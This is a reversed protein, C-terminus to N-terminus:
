VSPLDQWSGQVEGEVGDGVVIGEGPGSVVGDGVLAVVGAKGVVKGVNVVTTVPVVM